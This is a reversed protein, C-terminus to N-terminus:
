RSKQRAMTRQEIENFFLHTGLEEPIYNNLEGLNLSDKLKYCLQANKFKSVDAHFNTLLNRVSDYGDREIVLMLAGPKM